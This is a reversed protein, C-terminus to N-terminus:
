AGVIARLKARDTQAYCTTSVISSHNLAAQVLRLDGTRALLATAYSHRLSHASKGAVNAKAFWIALRRQAHRTSIRRENALFVPGSARAGLFARLKKSVDKPLVATTPRNNKTSRLMLEGHEFDVDAVDLGLASGIRIGCGLLLAILMRDRSAETGKTAALVALLRKQEDDRLARPPPAACRARRLLRAANTPALGSEHAWRLFCRLSTRQANASTAKKPGGRASTRAADSSFFEAVTTPTVNAIDLSAGRPTLWAILARVHRRYQNRTHESRGDAELQVLFAQLAAQLNMPKSTGAHPDCERLLELREIGFGARRGRVDRDLLFRDLQESDLDSVALPAPACKRGFTVLPFQSRLTTDTTPVGGLGFSV